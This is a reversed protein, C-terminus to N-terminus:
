GGKRQTAWVTAVLEMGAREYVKELSDGGAVMRATLLMYEGPLLVKGYMYRLFARIVNRGYVYHVNWVTADEFLDLEHTRIAYLLGQYAGDWEAVLFVNNSPAKKVSRFLSGILQSEGGKRDGMFQRFMATIGEVDKSKRAPRVLVNM